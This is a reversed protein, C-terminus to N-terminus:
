ESTGTVPVAQRGWGPTGVVRDDEYVVSGRVITRDIAGRVPRDAYPTWDIRSIVDAESITWERDLDVIAVDADAGVQIRGKHALGFTRAPATSTVEVVRELTLRGLHVADLLM